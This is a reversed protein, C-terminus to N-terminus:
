TEFTIKLQLDKEGVYDRLTDITREQNQEDLYKWFEWGNVSRDKGTVKKKVAAAASSVSTYRQGDFVIEGTKINFTAEFKQSYYMAFVKLNGGKLLPEQYFDQIISDRADIVHTQILKFIAKAREELFDLYSNDYFGSVLKDSILHFRLCKELDSNGSKLQQLYKSPSSKGIKINTIKPILTRNVVSDVLELVSEDNKYQKHLYDKPFIHHDELRSNFSLKRTNKWDLLGKAEYNILNLIGRYIASVKKSFSYLEDYSEVQSKLKFFFSKDTIKKGRAITELIHSDQIIIENSSGTYRQSFVSAWYWYKVFKLQSENMRCFDGKLERLFMMMPILMNEYPMWSQSIILHNDYLFDLVKKYQECLDQWYCDFHEHTLKTLIFTKDIDRGESVIYSIARVIIERNLPHNPHKSEFDDIHNRLNFGAYLKAALIDIFKLQIGRSNSREFFLTFKESTTDLLYYSLLKEAKFSDQIKRSIILFRRFISKSEEQSKGQIFLLNQFFNERIEDELFDGEMISYVDSLKISLRDSSEQGSYDFLIEELSLKSFEADESLEEDRKVTLWIEDAGKLARYISTIRQQGDLVLRFGTTQIKRDVDQKSYSILRLPKRRITKSKRPRTDLERATIEFSPVGYIISGIFIDRTLSDFLDYSKGIDWVFDRQFEPLVVIEKDISNILDRISETHQSTDM